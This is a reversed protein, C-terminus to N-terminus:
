NKFGNIVQRTLQKAQAILENNDKIGLDVGATLLMAMGHVSSWATLTITDLNGKFVGDDLGRQIIRRLEDYAACCSDLYAQDAGDTDLLGSFMLKSREPSAVAEQVYAVGAEILQQETNLGTQQARLMAQHLSDFGQQAIGRLLEAKDSFHRYPATHSVKAVRAVERLSFDVSGKKQLLQTAADLLTRRLNDKHYKKNEANM